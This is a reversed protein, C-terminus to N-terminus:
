GAKAEPEPDPAGREVARRADEDAYGIPVSEVRAGEPIEGEVADVAAHKPHQQDAWEIADALDAARLYVDSGRKRRVVFVTRDAAEPDIWAAPFDEACPAGHEERFRLLAFRLARLPEPDLGLDVLDDGDALYDAVEGVTALEHESELHGLIADSEPVDALIASLKVSRWSAPEPQGALLPRPTAIERILDNLEGQLAEVAKKDERALEASELAKLKARDIRRNLAVIRGLDEAAMSPDITQSESTM